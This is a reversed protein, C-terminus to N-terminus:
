ARTSRERLLQRDLVMDVGLTRYGVSEFLVVVQDGEYRQVLGPGWNQHEVEAGAPFPQAGPEPAGHGADCNDCNGCPAEYPEGFYSLIFERRCYDHEAYARVMEVRSRDFEARDREMQSAEHVASDDGVREDPAVRGGPLLKVAGVEDLRNLAVGLRSDSLELRDRLDTTSVPARNGRVAQSVRALCDADVAGGSAFFRRRGLDEPRYFLRARAPEGDRGGRGVEQYLADVSGSPDHHAVFRVDPKDIGMGFATTGIVVDLDGDMFSERVRERRGAALGGHYAAARVSREDLADAIEEATRRTSVYVLGPKTEAEVYDLLARRKKAEDYHREVALHINPRDFGSVIVAPDRLGLRGVIEDRVPPSATATLAAIRPRGLAQAAAGLRLYEPRFDHGWESVCHAEDVVMLSPRAERLRDLVDENALQEPALFVFEVGGDAVDDLTQERQAEAIASSVDGAEGPLTEDLAEVQDRQLAILPSVVVTPGPVLLAAIQYIASKGAGTSMVVLTDRGALIAEIAERQGPRLREFGFRERALREVEDRSV